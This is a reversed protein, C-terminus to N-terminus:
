GLLAKPSNKIVTDLSAIEENTLYDPWDAFSLQSLACLAGLSITKITKMKTIM